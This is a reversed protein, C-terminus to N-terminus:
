LQKDRCEKCLTYPQLGYETKHFGFLVMIEDIGQAVKGCEPCEQKINCAKHYMVGDVLEQEAELMEKRTVYKLRDKCYKVIRPGMKYTLVCGGICVPIMFIIGNQVGYRILKDVYEEPGGNVKAKKALKAYPWNEAM